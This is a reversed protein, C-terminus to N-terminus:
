LYIFVHYNLIDHSYASASATTSAASASAFASAVVAAFAGYLFAAVFAGFLPGTINLIIILLCTNVVVIRFLHINLSSSVSGFCISSHTTNGM